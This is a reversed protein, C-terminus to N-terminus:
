LYEQFAVSRKKDHCPCITPHATCAQRQAEISKNSFSDSTLGYLQELRRCRLELSVYYFPNRVSGNRDEDPLFAHKNQGDEELASYPWKFANVHPLANTLKTTIYQEINDILHVYSVINRINSVNIKASISRWDIFREFPLVINDALVFPIAGVQIADYLRPSWPFYGEPCLSFVTSQISEIYEYPKQHGYIISLKDFPKGQVEIRMNDKNKQTMDKWLSWM